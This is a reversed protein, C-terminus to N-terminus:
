ADYGVRLQVLAQALPDDIQALSRVTTDTSKPDLRIKAFALDGDNILLLDPQPEGTLQPVATLEGRIDLEVASTKTLAGDRM